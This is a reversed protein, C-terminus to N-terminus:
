LAQLHSQCIASTVISAHCLASLSVSLLVLMATAAARAAAATHKPSTGYGCTIGSASATNFQWTPILALKDLLVFM